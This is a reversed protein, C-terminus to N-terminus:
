PHIGLCPATVCPLPFLIPVRAPLWPSLRIRVSQVSGPLVELPGACGVAAPDRIPVARSVQDWCDRAAAAIVYYVGPDIGRLCWPGPGTLATMRQPRGEAVPGEFVAVVVTRVPPGTAVDLVGTVTGSTALPQSLEPPV